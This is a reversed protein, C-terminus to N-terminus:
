KKEQDKKQLIAASRKAEPTVAFAKFDKISPHLLPCEKEASYEHAKAHIAQLANHVNRFMHSRGIKQYLPTRRMVEVIEDNLGSFSVEYGAEHLQDILKSLMEEGSADLENVANGVILVHKLEPKSAVLELVKDELYSANAFFLSGNFRIVAIYKCQQLGWREANRYSGDPHKSLVALQPRMHRYLAVSLAMAVGIFIGKELHPAFLLTGIFTVIAIIGDAKQVSWAHAIGPLDILGIVAMMIIAALTAQPLYFLLPTFFLLVIVVMCSTFVSSMGTLAGAQINVASRSFSGSVPYSQSFSGVINALGQGILEQNPDLRQGTKAAMAKAISIAEMFGLLSIIAAMPFLQLMISFRFDPTHIAPLGQPIHGVVDGGAMMTIHETDLPRNGVKM